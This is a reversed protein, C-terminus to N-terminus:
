QAVHQLVIDHMSLMDCFLMVIYVLLSYPVVFDVYPLFQPTIMYRYKLCIYMSTSMYMYVYM